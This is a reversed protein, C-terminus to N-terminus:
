DNNLITCIGQADAISANVPNSLNVFFTEDPENSTDGKIPVTVTASSSGAPINVTGSTNTYDSPSKATGNATTYKVSVASTGPADLSVTFTANKTGSDGETVSIDNISITPQFSPLPALAKIEIKFPISYQGFHVESNGNTNFLTGRQIVSGDDFEGEVIWTDPSPTYTVKAWATQSPSNKTPPNTGGSFNPVCIQGSPCSTQDPEMLLEYSTGDPGSLYHFTVRTYFTVPGPGPIVLGSNRAIVNRVNMFIQSLFQGGGAFSPPGGDIISGDVPGPFQMWVNRTSNVLGLTADRSGACGGYHIVTNYVGNVGDEQYPVNPDDNWIAAQILSDTPIFKVSIPVDSCTAPPKAAYASIAFAFILIFLGFIKMLEEQSNAPYYLSIKQV